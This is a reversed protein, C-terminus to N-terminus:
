NQLDEIITEMNQHLRYPYEKYEKLFRNTCLKEDPYNKCYSQCNSILRERVLEQNKSYKKIDDKMQDPLEDIDYMGGKYNPYKNKCEYYINRYEYYETQLLRINMQKSTSFYCANLTTIQNITECIYNM